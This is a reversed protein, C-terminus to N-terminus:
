FVSINIFESVFINTLETTKVASKQHCQLVVLPHAQSHKLMRNMDAHIEDVNCFKIPNYKACPFIYWKVTGFTNFSM